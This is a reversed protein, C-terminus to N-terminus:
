LEFAFVASLVVLLFTIAGVMGARRGVKGAAADGRQVRKYSIGSVVNAGVLVLVLAMKASFWPSFGSTGGYKLWVMLPGTILLVVLGARGAKILINGLRFYAQRQEPTAAAMLRGMTLMAVLTGGGLALGLFHLWLLLANFEPM